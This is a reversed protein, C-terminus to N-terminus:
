IGWYKHKNTKGSRCWVRCRCHLIVTKTTQNKTTQTTKAETEM